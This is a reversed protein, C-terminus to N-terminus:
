VKTIIEYVKYEATATNYHGPLGTGLLLEPLWKWATPEEWPSTRSTKETLVLVWSQGSEQESYSLLFTSAM